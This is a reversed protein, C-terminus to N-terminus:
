AVWLQKFLALNRNWWIGCDVTIEGVLIHIIQHLLFVINLNMACSDHLGKYLLWYITLKL